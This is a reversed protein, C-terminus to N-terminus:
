HVCDVIVKLTGLRKLPVKGRNGHCLGRLMKLAGRGKIGALGLLNGRTAQLSGLLEALLEIADDLAVLAATRVYGHDVVEAAAATVALANGAGDLLAAARAGRTKIDVAAADGACQIAHDSSSLVTLVKVGYVQRL